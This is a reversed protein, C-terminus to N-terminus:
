DIVEDAGASLGLPVDLRLAKATKLNIVLEFKTARFVPLDAPNEGKLVRGTYIGAQRYGDGVDAGYSVLGGAVAAARTEYAAPIATQAALRILLDRRSDLFPGPGVLLAGPRNQGLNNFADIIERENNTQLFRATLGLAHAAAEIDVKFRQSVPRYDYNILVAITSAHPVLEHLLELRKSALEGSLIAIGTANGGPRNFSAVFGLLVPDDGTLFIIPLTNTAAKAPIVSPGNAFIVSVRRGVLDAALAPLRDYKDDAWRYEITVNSGEIYGTEKLGHKFANAMSAYGDASASNLFGVVPLESQAGAALPWVAAGTLLTIFERRKV